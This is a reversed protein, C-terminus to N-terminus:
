IPRIKPPPDSTSNYLTIHPLPNWFILMKTNYLIHVVGSEYTTMNCSWISYLTKVPQRYLQLTQNIAKNDYVLVTTIIYRAKTNHYNSKLWFADTRHLAKDRLFGNTQSPGNILWRRGCTALQCSPQPHHSAGDLRGVRCATAGPVPHGLLQQLHRVYDATTKFSM